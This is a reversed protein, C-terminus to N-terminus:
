LQRYYITSAILISSMAEHKRSMHEVLQAIGAYLSLSLIIGCNIFFVMYIINFFGICLKFCSLVIFFLVDVVKEAM